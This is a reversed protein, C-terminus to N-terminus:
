AQADLAQATTAAADGMGEISACWGAEFVTQPSGVQPHRAGVRRSESKTM